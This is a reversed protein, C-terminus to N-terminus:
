LNQQYVTLILWHCFLILFSAHAFMCNRKKKTLMWFYSICDSTSLIYLLLLYLLYFGLFISVGVLENSITTPLMIIVHNVADFLFYNGYLTSKWSTYSISAHPHDKSNALWSPLYYDDGFVSPSLHIQFVGDNNRWALCKSVFIVTSLLM